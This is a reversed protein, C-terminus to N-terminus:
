DDEETPMVLWESYLTNVADQNAETFRMIARSMKTSTMGARLAGAKISDACVETIAEWQNAAVAYEKVLNAMLGAIMTQASIGDGFDTTGDITEIETKQSELLKEASYSSAENFYKDLLSAIESVPASIAANSLFIRYAREDKRSYANITESQDGTHMSLLETKIMPLHSYLYAAASGIAQTQEDGSATGQETLLKAAQSTRYMATVAATSSGSKAQIEALTGSEGALSLNSSGGSGSSVIDGISDGSSSGGFISSWASSFSSSSSKGANSFTSDIDNLATSVKTDVSTFSDVSTNVWKVTDQADKVISINDTISSLNTISKIDDLGNLVYKQYLQLQALLAITPDETVGTDTRDPFAIRADASASFGLLLVGALLILLKNIKM